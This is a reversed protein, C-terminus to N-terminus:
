KKCEGQTKVIGTVIYAGLLALLLGLVKFITIKDLGFLASLVFTMVPYSLIIASAKGLDMNRIAYYWFTNGLFYNIVASFILTWWLTPVPIFIIGQTCVIYIILM